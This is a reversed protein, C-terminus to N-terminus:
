VLIGREKADRHGELYFAWLTIGMWVTVCSFRTNKDM